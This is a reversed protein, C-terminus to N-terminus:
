PGADAVWALQNFEGPPLSLGLVLAQGRGVAAYVLALTQQPPGMESRESWREGDPSFWAVPTGTGFEEGRRGAVIVGLEGSAVLELAVDGFAAPAMSWDLGDRSSFAAPHSGTEDTMTGIGILGGGAEAIGIVDAGPLEDGLPAEIWEGGTPSVLVVPEYDPGPSGRWGLAAFGGRFSTVEHFADVAPAPDARQWSSGDSSWWIAGITSDGGDVAGAMVLREGDSALDRAYGDFGTIAIPTWREGAAPSRWATPDGRPTASPCGAPHCIFNGFAIWESRFRTVALMQAEGESIVEAEAWDGDSSRWWAAPATAGDGDTLYGVAIVAV